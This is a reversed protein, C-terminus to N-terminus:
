RAAASGRTWRSVANVQSPVDESVALLCERGDLVIIEASYITEVPEGTSRRFRTVRNRIGRERLQALMRPRENPDDWIGIEVVTRGLLQERSYGYRREFADNVEVFRGEDLTTISFAIPSSRFVKQFREESLMRDQEVKRLAQETVELDSLRRELEAGYIEAREYLRANQIAVAAPIALSKALRLHDPSFANVRGDGLSLFGLVEHSAVLPVCLWSRFHSFGRFSEWEAEATTDPVLLSNKTALVQMLFRSDEADLTLPSRPSRRDVAYNHIERALFLRTEAERLLVQASECPILKLLSQLLTDLVNDMSLNQTLALSTKRFAEAEARASEALDLNRAMQEEASKRASIDLATGALRLVNGASDRVPVGRAWVWRTSSDPRTIRFEEDFQGTRVSEGLRSLVRVRDEPHIVEEYSKPDKQLSECSRGTITEYAPNVYLLEMTAADLMWVMEHINTAMQQFREESDRLAAEIQKRRTIDRLIAVHRGPLYHAKATYEVFISEGAGRRIRTEGHEYQRDLFSKWADRFDGEGAYFRNIPRGVLGSRGGGLLTVAARNAELCIGQDDLILIGDLASDFVSKYERETADLVNVTERHEHRALLLFRVHLVIAICLAILVLALLQSSLAGGYFHAGFAAALLTIAAFSILISGARMWGQPRGRFLNTRPTHM